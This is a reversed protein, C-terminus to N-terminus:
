NSCTIILLSCGSTGYGVVNGTKSAVEKKSVMLLAGFHSELRHGCLFVAEVTSNQLHENSLGNVLLIHSYKNKNPNDTALAGGKKRM